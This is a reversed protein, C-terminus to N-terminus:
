LWCLDYTVGPIKSFALAAHTRYKRELTTTTEIQKEYKNEMKQSTTWAKCKSKKEKSLKKM